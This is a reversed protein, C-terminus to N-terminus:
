IFIKVVLDLLVDFPDNVMILYDEDWPHLSPEIYLFGDICDVVYFLLLFFFMTMGNSASFALGGLVFFYKMSNSQCILIPFTAMKGFAIYLNLAIGM